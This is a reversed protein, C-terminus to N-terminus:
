DLLYEDPEPQGDLLRQVREQDEALFDLVEDGAVIYFIKRTVRALDSLQQDECMHLVDEFMKDMDAVFLRLLEYRARPPMAKLGIRRFESQNDLWFVVDPREESSSMDPANM